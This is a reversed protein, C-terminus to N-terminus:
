DRSDFGGTFILSFMAIAARIMLTVGRPGWSVLEDPGCIPRDVGSVM